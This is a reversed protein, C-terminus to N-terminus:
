RIIAASQGLHLANATDARDQYRHFFLVHEVLSSHSCVTCSGTLGKEVLFSANQIHTELNLSVATSELALAFESLALMKAEAKIVYRRSRDRLATWFSKYDSLREFFRKAFQVNSCSYQLLRETHTKMKCLRDIMLTFNIWFQASQRLIQDVQHHAVSADM